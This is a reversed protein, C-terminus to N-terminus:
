STATFATPRDAFPATFRHLSSHPVDIQTLPGRALGLIRSLIVRIPGGHTVILVHVQLACADRWAARVRTCMDELPEGGSPACRWPDRYFDRLANPSIQDIEDASRGEWAGFDLERLRADIRLPLRHYRVLARAFDACRRLPSTIVLTPPGIRSVAAWMQQWGIGTLPDDTIGRYRAGGTVQGHRLLWVSHPEKDNVAQWGEHFAPM